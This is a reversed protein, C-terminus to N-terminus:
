TKKVPTKEGGTCCPPLGKKRFTKVIRLTTFVAAGAIILIIIILQINETM